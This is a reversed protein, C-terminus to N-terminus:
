MPRKFEQASGLRIPNEGAFDPNLMPYFAYGFGVNDPRGTPLVKPMVVAVAAVGRHKRGVARFMANIGDVVMQDFDPQLISAGLVVIGPKRNNVQGQASVVATEVANRLVRPTRRHRERWQLADPSRLALSLAEGAATRFHLQMDSQTGVPLSFGVRNGADFLLKATALGTMVRLFQGAVALPASLQALLPHEGWCALCHWMAAVHMTAMADDDQHLWSWEPKGIQARLRQVSWAFPYDGHEPRTADPSSAIQEGLRGGTLRDYAAATAELVAASVPMAESPPKRPQTLAYGRTVEDRCALVTGPPIPNPSFVPLDARDTLIAASPLIDGAALGPTTTIEGCHFCRIRIALFNEPAYGSILMSKGCQCNLAAGGAGILVPADRVQMFHVHDL